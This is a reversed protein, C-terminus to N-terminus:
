VWEKKLCTFQSSRRAQLTSGGKLGKKTHTNERETCDFQQTNRTTFIMKISRMIFYGIIVWWPDRKRCCDASSTLWNSEFNVLWGGTSLGSSEVSLSLALWTNRTLKNRKPSFQDRFEKLYINKAAVSYRQPSELTLNINMCTASAKELTCRHHVYNNKNILWFCIFLRIYHAVTKSASCNLLKPRYSKTESFLWLPQM